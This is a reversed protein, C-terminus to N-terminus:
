IHRIQSTERLNGRVKGKTFLQFRLGSLLLLLPLCISSLGKWIELSFRHHHNRFLILKAHYVILKVYRNLQKLLM